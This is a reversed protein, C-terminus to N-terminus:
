KNKQRKPSGKVETNKTVEVHGRKRSETLETSKDLAEAYVADMPAGTAEGDREASYAEFRHYIEVGARLLDLISDRMETTSIAHNNAEEEPDRVAVVEKDAAKGKKKPTPTPKEPVAEEDPESVVVEKEAAAKGKKKPSAKKSVAEEESEQTAVAEKEAAAKGEKKPGPNPKKSASTEPEPDPSDAEEQAKQARTRHIKTPTPTVPAKTKTAPEKAPGKKATAKTSTPKVPTTEASTAKSPTSKANTRRKSTAGKSTSLDAPEEPESDPDSPDLDDDSVHTAAGTKKKGTPKNAPTRPSPAAQSSTVVKTAASPTGKTKPKSRIQIKSHHVEEFEETADDQDDAANEVDGTGDELRNENEGLEVGSFTVRKKKETLAIRTMAVSNKWNKNDRREAIAEDIEAKSRGKKEAVVASSVQEEVEQEREKGDGVKKNGAIPTFASDSWDSPPYEEDSM